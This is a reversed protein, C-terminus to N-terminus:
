PRYIESFLVKVDSPDHYDSLSVCAALCGRGAAVIEDGRSAQGDFLVGDDRYRKVRVDMEVSWGPAVRRYFRVQRFCVLLGMQAFDSSLVILWNGLQFISELLLSEPLHPEDALRAALQYEEFSVMKVGRISERPQFATIRDVMRFKM